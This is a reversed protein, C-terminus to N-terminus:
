GTTSVLPVTVEHDGYTLTIGVERVGAAAPHVQLAALVDTVEATGTAAVLTAVAGRLTEIAGRHREDIVQQEALIADVHARLEPDSPIRDLRENGSRLRASRNPRTM